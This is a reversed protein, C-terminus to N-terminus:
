LTLSRQTCCTIPLIDTPFGTGCTINNKNSFLTPGESFHCEKMRNEVQLHIKLGRTIHRIFNKALNLRERGRLRAASRRLKKNSYFHVTYRGKVPTKRKM